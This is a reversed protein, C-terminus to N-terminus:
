MDMGAYSRKSMATKDKEQFQAPDTAPCIPAATLTTSIKYNVMRPAGKKTVDGEKETITAGKGLNAAM